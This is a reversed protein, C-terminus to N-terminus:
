IKMALLLTVKSPLQRTLFTMTVYESEINITADGSFEQKPIYQKQCSNIHQYFPQKQQKSLDFM